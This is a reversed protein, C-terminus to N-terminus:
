WCSRRVYWVPETNVIRARGGSRVCQACACGARSEGAERQVHEDPILTGAASSAPRMHYSLQALHSPPTIRLLVTDPERECCDVSCLARGLATHARVYPQRSPASQVYLMRSAQPPQLDRIGRAPHLRQVLALRQGACRSVDRVAAQSSSLVCDQPQL